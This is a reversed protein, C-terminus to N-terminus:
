FGLGPGSLQGTAIEGSRVTFLEPYRAHWAANGAPCYQRANGEIAAVTPIRAALSASHLFAAGPCTLDQVCLFLGYKQAAAGMLLSDSQGKCAKLAVGSYGQERALQLSALDVLAEDIVVPKLAAARQMRHEPHAALHRSTPQEIYQLRDWATPARSRLAAFFDLLYEVHACKENFDCSYCWSMVGLAQQTEQVVRDIDCVRQVDWPLDDGALKIKFHTLRETRIWQELTEPWGDHLPHAVDGLVLPDLAGVLHYLPMTPKPTRLTYRDLYEGAFEGGLYYSLDHAVFEPGLTDFASQGHLKGFADHLAADASSAAVLQALRPLPELLGRQAEIQKARDAGAASWEHALALPDGWLPQVLDAAAAEGYALMAALTEEGTVQQSPWAWANGLPMVGRGLAVTGTRSQVELEVELLTASTVVRGGFKMPARYPITTVSCRAACVRIDTSRSM